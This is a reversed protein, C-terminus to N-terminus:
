FNNSFKNKKFQLFLSRLLNRKFKGALQEVCFILGPANGDGSWWYGFQDIRAFNGKPSPQWRAWNFYAAKNGASDRWDGKYMKFIHNFMKNFSFNLLIIGLLDGEVIDIYLDKSVETKPILNKFTEMFSSYELKSRPLPLTTNKEKCIKDGATRKNLGHYNVSFLKQGIKIKTGSQVPKTSQTRTTSSTTTTTTTTYVQPGLESNTMAPAGTLNQVCIINLFKEDKFKWFSPAPGGFLVYMGTTGKSGGM